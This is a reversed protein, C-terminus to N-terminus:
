AILKPSTHTYPERRSLVRKLGVGRFKNLGTCRAIVCVRTHVNYLTPGKRQFTLTKSRWGLNRPAIEGM